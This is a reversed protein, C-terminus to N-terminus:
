GFIIQLSFMFKKTIQVFLTHFDSLYITWNLFWRVENPRQDLPPGLIALFNDPGGSLQRLLPDQSNKYKWIKNKFIQDIFIQYKFWDDIKWDGIWVRSSRICILRRQIWINTQEVLLNWNTWLQTSLPIWLLKIKTFDAHPLGSSFLPQSCKVPVSEM